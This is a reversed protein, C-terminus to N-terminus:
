AHEQHNLKHIGMEMLKILLAIGYSIGIGIGIVQLPVMIYDLM